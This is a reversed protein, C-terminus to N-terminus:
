APVAPDRHGIARVLGQAINLDSAIFYAASAKDLMATVVCNSAVAGTMWRPDFPSLRALAAEDLQALRNALVEFEARECHGAPVELGLSRLYTLEGGTYVFDGFGTPLHKRVFAVCGEIDRRRPEGTLGFSDNLDVVGFELLVPPGVPPVIQMSKGGVNVVYLHEPLGEARAATRILLAEREHSVVEFATDYRACLRAVLGALVSDTRALATGIATRRSDPFTHHLEDLVDALQGLAQEPSHRRGLPNWTVTQVLSLDTGGSYVKLSHSGVDIVIGDAMSM